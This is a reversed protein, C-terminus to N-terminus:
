QVVEYFLGDNVFNHRTIIRGNELIASVFEGKKGIIHFVEPEEGLTMKVRRTWVLKEGDNDFIVDLVPTGDEKFLSFVSLKSRDIDEYANTTGDSHVQFLSTGDEYQAKWNYKAM